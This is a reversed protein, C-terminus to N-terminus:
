STGNIPWGIYAYARTLRQSLRGEPGIKILVVRLSFVGTALSLVPTALAATIPSWLALLLLALALGTYIALLVLSLRQWRFGHIRRVIGWAVLFHVAYGLLFAVATVELGLSPLLALVLVLFVANFTLELFLYAKANAAAVISYSLSWSALKLVNGVTQWQLLTAAPSLEHSYLLVIVCPAWGILFLLIPGGIAICLQAQDNMLRIAATRDRIVETLRPYYDAGMANLMFGVYITTIGWAAAFQGAADLGMEQTIRARVILLTATTALAALMFSVGLWAMPKWTDWIVKPMMQNFPAKPLQRTFYVAILVGALPQVLVLWILGVEGFNWIAWLGVITAVFASIVTVKGLEDICRLGQLVAIHAGSILGLLVAIGLLGVEVARSGNGFLWISISERMMWVALLALTGQIMHAVVLVYRIRNVKSVDERARAIERVGSSDIGLGAIQGVMDKLNTYISLIGIGPAGVFLTLMKMRFISILINIGQASGIILM